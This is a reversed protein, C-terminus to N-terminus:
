RKGGGCYYERTLQYARLDSCIGCRGKQNRRAEDEIIKYMDEARKGKKRVALALTIDDCNSELYEIICETLPDIDQKKEVKLKGLAATLPDCLGEMGGQVYNKLDDELGNEWALTELGKIDGEALLGAAAANIEEYSDFEGFVQFLETSRKTNKDTKSKAKRAM